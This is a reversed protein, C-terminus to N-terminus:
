FKKLILYLWLLTAGPVIMLRFKWSSGIANADVKHVRFFSFYLAYIFGFVFYAEALHVVFM